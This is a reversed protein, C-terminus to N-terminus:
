PITFLHMYSYSLVNAEMTIFETQDGNTELSTDQIGLTEGSVFVCM